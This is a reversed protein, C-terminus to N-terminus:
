YFNNRFMILALGAYNVPLTHLAYLGLVLAIVGVVGPFISAPTIYSLFCGM